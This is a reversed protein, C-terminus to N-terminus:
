NNENRREEKAQLTNIINQFSKRIKTTMKNRTDREKQSDTIVGAEFLFNKLEEEVVEVVRAREQSLLSSIFEEIEDPETEIVPVLSGLLTIHVIPFKENFEVEWEEKRAQSYNTKHASTNQKTDKNM